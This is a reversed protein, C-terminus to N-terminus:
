LLSPLWFIITAGVSGIATFLTAAVLLAAMPLRVAAEARRQAFFYLELMALPLTTHAIALFRDYEGTLDSHMGPMQFGTALAWFGFGLRIFWVGCAAIFLRMAWRRHADFKRAQAMRLAMIACVIVLAANINNGIFFPVGGLAGRTWILVLASVSILLAVAVYIRGNWRHFIRFKNRLKPILQVPGGVTIVFALLVHAAFMANGLLDGAVLGFGVREDMRATDGIAASVVYQRGIFIAFMAQGALAAWFWAIGTMRLLKLSGIRLRPAATLATRTM